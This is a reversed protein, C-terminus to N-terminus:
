PEPDIRFLQCQRWVSRQAEVWVPGLKLHHTSNKDASPNVSIDMIGVVLM